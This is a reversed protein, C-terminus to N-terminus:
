KKNKNLDLLIRVCDVIIRSAHGMEEITNMRSFSVRISNRADEESIGLSLLVRSPESEHSRCASGSSVYVGRASLMLMLTEADVGDFRMNMVKGPRNLPLDGNMHFVNLLEYEKLNGKIAGYFYRKLRGIYRTDQDLQSNLIECAKGFAVIGAVNETGGRLGFEQTNGGAILPTLIEPNRVYLAGTGKLGHIKHASMSMFDCRLKEVSLKACGLAQVCDTHLLVGKEQCVMGIARVDNELGTENNVRMVSVLGTNPEDNIADIVAEASVSSNFEPAIYEADFESKIFSPPECLKKVANLVSDHEVETTIIHTKNEKLLYNKVGAFVMNNAESGGSTFIIQEPKANILKAVQTRANDIAQRAKKGMPYLTGANGYEEILYPMAAEIVRPDPKTTAANDLYIM